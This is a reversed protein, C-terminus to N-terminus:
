LRCNLVVPENVEVPCLMVSPVFDSVIFIPLVTVSPAVVAVVPFMFIVLLLPVLMFAATDVDPENITVAPFAMVTVDVIALLKRLKFVVLM